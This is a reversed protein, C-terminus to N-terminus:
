RKEFYGLFSYKLMNFKSMKINYDNSRILCWYFIYIFSLISGLSRRASWFTNRFYQEDFGHFWQSNESLVTAIVEPVYIMKLRKKKCDILFKNEEGGGNGTGSGMKIDFALENNVIAERKFTIQVSSTKLIEKIGVKIKHNPYNYNKRNISFIILDYKTNSIYADIIKREYQEDLFEDDDCIYCVDGWSNRIAMNRSRSLGRETTCIFKAHCTAGYRNVFDFEEIRNQDCQNVVVVDSQVNSRQIISTDKEYMCSILVTLSMM